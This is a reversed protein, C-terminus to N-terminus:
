CWEVEVFSFPCPHRLYWDGSDFTCNWAVVVVVVDDHHHHHRFHHHNRRWSNTEVVNPPSSPVVGVEVVILRVVYITTALVCKRAVPVLHYRLETDQCEDEVAVVGM